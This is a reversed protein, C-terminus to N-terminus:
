ADRRRYNLGFNPSPSLYYIKLALELLRKQQLM